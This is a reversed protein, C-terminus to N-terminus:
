TRPVRPKESDNASQSRVIQRFIVFTDADELPVVAKM